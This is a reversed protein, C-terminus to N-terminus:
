KKFKNFSPELMIQLIIREGKENFIAGRHVGDPNFIFGLCKDSEMFVENELLKNAVLQHEYDILDNGFNAKHRFISPLNMFKRKISSKRLSELNSVDNAKRSAFVHLSEHKHSNLVYSFAGKGGRVGESLYLICKMTNVGSDIHMYKTESIRGTEDRCAKLIGGDDSENIQLAVFSLQMPMNKHAEAADFVGLYKCLNEFYSYIEDKTKISCLMKISRSVGRNEPPFKRRSDKLETIEKEFKNRLDQVIKLNPKLPVIGLEDLEKSAKNSKFFDKYKRSLLKGKKIGKRIRSYHGLFITFEKISFSSDSKATSYLSHSKYKILPIQM